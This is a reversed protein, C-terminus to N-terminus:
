KLVMAKKIYDLKPFNKQLYENGQSMILMQNPGKGRPAGEGYGGYLSDVVAMGTVVHGFPAFGQKDLSGNNGYNIFLQTTRSNPQGRMAFTLTGRANTTKVPDDPIGANMWTQNLTPNGSMGFQAMFGPIVRFFRVGDYWGNRVLNYFRDAGHPSLARDVEVVIDGKTTEFEVQFTDPATKNMEPSKPDFLPSKAKEAKKMAPKQAPKGSEQALAPVAALALVAGVLLFSQIRKM